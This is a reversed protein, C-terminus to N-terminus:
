YSWYLIVFKLIIAFVDFIHFLVITVIYNINKVYRRAVSRAVLILLIM